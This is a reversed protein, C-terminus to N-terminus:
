SPSPAIPSPSRRPSFESPAIVAARGGATSFFRGIEANLEQYAPGELPAHSGNSLVILEKSAPVRDFVSRSMATPTWADAGPHALLLPCALAYDDRPPEYATMSRFLRGSVRKRGLLPDRLFLRGLMRDTTLTEIPTTLALPLAIRDLLWPMTRFGLLAARGLLRHRAVGVMMDPDRLDILTTAVVGAVIDCAKQAAWFATMGGVSLGYTFVPGHHRHERALDAVLDVWDSYAPQWETPAVTLGYGPLDPVVVRFGAAALPAAFPALLRGNGGGGHVLVVTGRAEGQVSWDDIHVRHGRWASWREDPLRDLRIRFAAAVRALYANSFSTAEYSPCDAMITERSRACTCRAQQFGAQAM